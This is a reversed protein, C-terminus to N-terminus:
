QNQDQLLQCCQRAVILEENTPVIWVSTRSSDSHITAEGLANTDPQANKVTDIEIGLDSLGECVAARIADGNEGIGATFCIADAGGLAVLMGGLHRRIEAVYVDLAAQCDADGEAAAQEIDRIDASKGSLGLLGCENALRSLTQELTEGTHQMIIPLAFPDFDGVRNNQPLGTQPTMGMTTAMSEGNQIACLSSSGGLHCSIVRADPKGLLESMRTAIYRHSAGHFGWKQIKWGDTWERPIAYTRRSAPITLHFGTEFAAVLPIGAVKEALTRMAAIYPPNHAPAASNMESMADLVDDNVLQVGSVRGGHVAKFGIASVESPDKLCGHEPDTLQRLCAEVAVGHDPVPMTQEDSWDGIAVRCHSSAEGIRDVAGKALCSEDTMDLVQYKFSTSGLNAVLVKM